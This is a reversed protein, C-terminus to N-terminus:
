KLKKYDEITLPIYCIVDGTQFNHLSNSQRKIVHTKNRKIKCLMPSTLKTKEIFDSESSFILEETNNIILKFPNSKPEVYDSDKTEKLKKGLRPHIYTKPRPKGKVPNVWDPNKLRERMTLGLQREAIEPVKKGRYVHGLKSFSEIPGGKHINALIGTGDIIKGYKQITEIEIAYALELPVDEAIIIRNFYKDPFSEVLATHIRNRKKYICRKASGIGVYFPNNTIPNIDLYVNITM